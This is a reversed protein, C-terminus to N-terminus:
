LFSLQSMGAARHEKMQPLEQNLVDAAEKQWGLWRIADRLDLVLPMRGHVDRVSANAERTVIM